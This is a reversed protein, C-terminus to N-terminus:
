MNTKLGFLCGAAIALIPIVIGLVIITDTGPKSTLVLTAKLDVFREIDEALPTVPVTRSILYVDSVEEIKYSIVREEEHLASFSFYFTTGAIIGAVILGATLGIKM